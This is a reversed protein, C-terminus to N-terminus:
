IQQRSEFFKTMIRADEKPREYYNKRLGTGVFGHKTYLAIAPMNSDRVELTVFRLERERCREELGAILADAIGQRRSEPGVAVNSIYGEDLVAMMGVYGLVRGEPSLAALFEHMSDRLQSQLQEATWPLSFCQKELAEIQPILEPAADVIEYSM